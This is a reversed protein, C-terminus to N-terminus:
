LTVKFFCHVLTFKLMGVTLPRFAPKCYLVICAPPFSGMYTSYVSSRPEIRTGCTGSGANILYSRVVMMSTSTPDTSVTAVLLVTCEYVEFCKCEISVLDPNWLSECMGYLQETCTGGVVFDKTEMPCGILDMTAIYPENTLPDLGAM